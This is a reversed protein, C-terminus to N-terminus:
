RVNRAVQTVQAVGHGARVRMVPAPCCRNHPHPGTMRVLQGSLRREQQRIVPGISVSSCHFLVTHARQYVTPPWFRGQSRSLLQGGCAQVLPQQRRPYAAAHQEPETAACVDPMSIPAGQLRPVPILKSDHRMELRGRPLGPVAMPARCPQVAAMNPVDSGQNVHCRLVGIRPGTSALVDLRM